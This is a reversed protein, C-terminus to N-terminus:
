KAINEKIEIAKATFYERKYEIKNTMNYELLTRELHIRQYNEDLENIKAFTNM